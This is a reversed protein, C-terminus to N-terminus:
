KVAERRNFYIQYFLYISFILYLNFIIVATHYGISDNISHITSLFENQQFEYESQNAMTWGSLDYGVHMTSGIGFNSFMIVHVTEHTYVYVMAGSYAAIFTLIAFLVLLKIKNM